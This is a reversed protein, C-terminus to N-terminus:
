LEKLKEILKDILDSVEREEKAKEKAKREIEEEDDFCISINEEFITKFVEADSSKNEKLHRYICNILTFVDAGLRIANGKVHLRELEGGDKLKYDIM